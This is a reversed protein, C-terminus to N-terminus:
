KGGAAHEAWLREADAVSQRLLPLAQQPMRGFYYPPRSTLAFPKGRIREYEAAFTKWPHRDPAANTAVGGHYQHFSGEGLLVTLSTGRTGMARQYFDLSVLGGGPSQFARDFGGLRQWLERSVTFCSSEYQAGFWGSGGDSRSAVGFLGYGDKKWDLTGLLRDEADQDYGRLRSQNQVEPGLHFGVTSIFPNDLREALWLSHGLVGPTLMHAGDVMVTVFPATALGVGLNVAEVPSVSATKHRHYRFGPGFARVTQEDLPESSGNDIAIVEYAGAPIMLQYASSLCHLTRAAERRMNYFVVVVSLLPGQAASM